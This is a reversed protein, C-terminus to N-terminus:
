YTGNARLFSRFHIKQKELNKQSFETLLEAQNKDQAWATEWVSEHLKWDDTNSKNMFKFVHVESHEGLSIAVTIFLSGKQWEIMTDPYVAIWRAGEKITQISGNSYYQWDVDTNHIDILDYVGTHVTQIHDVDLFLDMINKTTSNVKDIRSEVLIIDSFDIDIDFDVPSDFLLGKWEYVSETKLSETNKCYYETRGSTLPSGDLNFSWNHYPCVRVGSGDKSSILSQQHTCINSVLKYTGNHNVLVKQKKYQDLVKYSSEPISSKLALFM